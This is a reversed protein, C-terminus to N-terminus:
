YDADELQYDKMEITIHGAEKMVPQGRPTILWVTPIPLKTHPAPAYGDTCYILIDPADDQRRCM